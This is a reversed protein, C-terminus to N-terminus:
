PAAEYLVVGDRKVEEGLTGPMASEEELSAATRVIVDVPLMYREALFRIIPASRHGRAREKRVVVLLDVDSEDTAEGRAYSGFLIVKQPRFQQGITRAIEIITERSTM